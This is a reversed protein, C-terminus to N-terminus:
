GDSLSRRQPLSPYVAWPHRVILTSVTHFNRVPVDMQTRAHLVVKGSVLIRLRDVLGIDIYIYHTIEGPAREAPDALYRQPFLWLLLRKIM